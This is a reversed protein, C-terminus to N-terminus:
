LHTPTFEVPFQHLWSHAAVDLCLTFCHFRSVTQSDTYVDVSHISSVAALSLSTCHVIDSIMASAKHTFCIHVKKLCAIFKKTQRVKQIEEDSHFGSDELEPRYSYEAVPPSPQQVSQPSPTGFKYFRENVSSSQTHPLAPAPCMAVAM